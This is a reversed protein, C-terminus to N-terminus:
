HYAKASRLHGQGARDQAAAGGSRPIQAYLADWAISDYINGATVEEQLQQAYVKATKAAQEKRYKKRNASAKIHTGDIFMMSADVIKHSLTKNM